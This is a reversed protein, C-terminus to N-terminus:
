LTLLHPYFLLFPWLSLVMTSWYQFTLSSLCYYTAFFISFPYGSLYSSFLSLTTHQFGISYDITEFAALFDLIIFVSIQDNLPNGIVVWLRKETSSVRYCTTASDGKGLSWVVWGSEGFIHKKKTKTCPLIFPILSM